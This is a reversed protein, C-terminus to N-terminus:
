NGRLPLLKRPLKGNFLHDIAVLLGKLLSQGRAPLVYFRHNEARACVRSDTGRLIPMPDKPICSWPAKREPNM